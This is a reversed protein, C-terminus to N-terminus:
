SETDDTAPDEAPAPDEVPAPQDGTPAEPDVAVPVPDPEDGTPAPTEPLPQTSGSGAGTNIVGPVADKLRQVADGLKAATTDLASTDIDPGGAAILQAKLDAIITTQEQQLTIILDTELGIQVIGDNIQGIEQDFQQQNQAMAALEKKLTQLQYHLRGAFLDGMRRLFKM